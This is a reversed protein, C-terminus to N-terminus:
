FSIREGRLVRRDIEEMDEKSLKSVDSKVVAAAGARTGNEIARSGRLARGSGIEDKVSRATYAIVGSLIDDFHAYQYADKVSMGSQLAFAFNENDIENELSFEPYLQQLANAQQQWDDVISQQEAAATTEAESRQEEPVAQQGQEAATESESIKSVLTQVDDTGYKECLTEMLTAYRETQAKLEDRQAETKKANKFRKDIVRQLDAQYEKKFRDKFQKYSFTEGEASSSESENLAPAPQEGSEEATTPTGVGPTATTEAEAAIQSSPATSEGDFWCLNFSIM